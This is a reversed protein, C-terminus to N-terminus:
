RLWYGLVFGVTSYAWWRSEPNGNPTLIVILAAILVLASVVIRAVLRVRRRVLEDDIV